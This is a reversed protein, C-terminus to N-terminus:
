LVKEHKAKIIGAMHTVQAMNGRLLFSPHYLPVVISNLVPLTFEQGLVDGMKFTKLRCIVKTSTSGLTFILKPKVLKMEAWLWGKCADIEETTPARNDPPRCKVVNSVYVETRKLGAEEIIRTLLKGSRGVFPEGVLTEDEGLAEGVFMIDAPTPGKGPAINVTFKNDAPCLSCGECQKIGERLEEITTM